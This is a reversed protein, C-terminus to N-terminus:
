EYWKEQEKFYLSFQTGQQYLESFPGLETGQGNELVLISDCFQCVGMRHTVIISTKGIVEDLLMQTLVYEKDPDIASSPEDLIIFSSKAYLSRMLAILQLWGGSLNIGGFETSLCTDPSLKPHSFTTDLLALRQELAREDEESLRNKQSTLAGRGLAINDKLMMKYTLFDQLLASFGHDVRYERTNHGDIYVDGEDPIYLGTALKTLTTKGSGNYGVVSLKQGPELVFSLNDIVKEDTKPYSFSVNKFEIRPAESLIVPKRQKWDENILEHYQVLDNYYNNVMGLENFFFGEVLFRFSMIASLCATFTGIDIKGAALLYSALSIASIDAILSLVQFRLDHRQAEHQSQVEAHVLDDLSKYFHSKIGSISSLSRTEKYFEPAILMSEAMDAVRSARALKEKSEERTDLKASFQYFNPIVFILLIFTLSPEVSYLVMASSFIGTLTATFTDIIQMGVYGMPQTIDFAAEVRDNFDSTEFLILEADKLKHFLKKNAQVEIQSAFASHYHNIIKNTFYGFFISFILAFLLLIVKDLNVESRAFQNVSNIFNKTLWTNVGYSLGYLVSVCQIVLMKFTNNSYSLKVTDWLLKLKRNQM